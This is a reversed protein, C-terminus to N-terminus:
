AERFFFFNSHKLPCYNLHSNSGQSAAEPFMIARVKATSYANQRKTCKGAYENMLYKNGVALHSATHEFCNQRKQM